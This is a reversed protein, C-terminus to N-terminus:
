RKMSMLLRDLSTLGGIPSKSDVWKLYKLDCSFVTRLLSLASVVAAHKASRLKVRAVNELQFDRISQTLIQCITGLIRGGGSCM